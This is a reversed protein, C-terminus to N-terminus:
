SVTVDGDIFSGTFMAGDIAVMLCSYKRDGAEWTRDTPWMYNFNVSESDAVMDFFPTVADTCFAESEATLVDEGPFEAADSTSEAVVEFEHPTSCDVKEWMNNANYEISLICDGPVVETDAIEVVDGTPEDTPEETTPDDTPEDTTPEDTPEQTTTPDATPDDGGGGTLAQIAFFIGVIVAIGVIVGIIIPMSNKKPPQGGPGGAGGYGGGPGGPGGPGGFGGYGPQSGAGFGPAQGPQQGFAPQGPQQGYPPQGPQQPQGPQPQGFQQTPQQPQGYGPQQPQGPQSSAGYGPQQPQGPQSSAGYSPQQPQGPQSSAGYSPAQGPQQPAGYAPQDGPQQPPQGPQQPPQGPQQPDQGSPNWPTSM